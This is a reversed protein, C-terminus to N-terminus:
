ATMHQLAFSSAAMTPRRLSRAFGEGDTQVAVDAMRSPEDIKLCQVQGIVGGGCRDADSAINALLRDAESRAPERM